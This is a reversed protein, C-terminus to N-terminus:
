QDLPGPGWPISGRFNRVDSRSGEREQQLNWLCELSNLPAPSAPDQLFGAPFPHRSHALYTGLTLSTMRSWGLKRAPGCAPIALATEMCEDERAFWYSSQSSPLSYICRKQLSPLYSIITTTGLDGPCKNPVTFGSSPAAPIGDSHSPDHKGACPPNPGRGADSWAQSPM